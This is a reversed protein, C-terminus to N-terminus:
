ILSENIRKDGNWQFDTSLNVYVM